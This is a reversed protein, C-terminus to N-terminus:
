AAGAAYAHYADALPGTVHLRPDHAAGAAYGDPTQALKLTVM